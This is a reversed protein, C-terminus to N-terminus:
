KIPSLISPTFSFRCAVSAAAAVADFLLVGALSGQPEQEQMCAAPLKPLFNCVNRAEPLLKCAASCCMEIAPTNELNSVDPPQAIAADEQGVEAAPEGPVERLVAAM